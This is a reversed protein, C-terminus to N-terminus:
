MGPDPREPATNESIWRMAAQAGTWEEGTVFEYSERAAAAAAGSCSNIVGVLTEVALADDVRNLNQVAATLADPDSLTKMAIAVTSAIEREDDLEAIKEEFRSQIADKGFWALAEVARKRLAPNPSGSLEEALAFVASRENSDLADQLKAAAKKEEPTFSEEGNEEQVAKAAEALGPGTEAPRRTQTHPSAKGGAKSAPQVGDRRRPQESETEKANLRKKLLEPAKAMMFLGAIFMPAFLIGILLWGQPYRLTGAPLFLLIMVIALGSFFKVLAQSLLQRSM